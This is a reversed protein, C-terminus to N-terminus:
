IFRFEAQDINSVIELMDFSTMATMFTFPGAPDLNEPLMLDFITLNIIRGPTLFYRKFDAQNSWGPYFLYRNNGFAEGLDLILFHCVQQQSGGNMIRCQVKFLDGGFYQSQNLNLLVTLDDDFPTATPTGTGFYTPTPTPTRTCTHFGTPTVTPTRTPTCTPTHTPPPASGEVNGTVVLAYPQKGFHGQPVNFATVVITYVGANASGLFVCEEPNLRDLFGEPVSWGNNFNNGNWFQSGYTVTLDLDNVMAVACGPAAAHDTWVLTVKLPAGGDVVNVNYFHQEGTALGAPEDHIWLKYPEGQFYLVSDLLVRGWGQDNGPRPGTSVMAGSNILMAKMLAGSPNISNGPDPTGLPYWGETLYQRVLAACGAVGPCAMSTGMMGFGITTCSPTISEGSSNKASNLNTGPSDVTPKFRGDTAPGRSSYNAIQEQNPARGTAGVSVVNKSTAPTGVTSANPGSNGNAFLLLFDSHDWMFQDAEVAMSDYANETSGWSNTHIRAGDNYADGFITTLDSTLTLQGLWCEAFSNGQIDGFTIKSMFATGNYIQNSGYIDNGAATGSVHTGHGLFCSDYLNGGYARYAIVKRHLPNPSSQQNDRFFCSGYDLGSDLVGIIQNEGHLGNDWVPTFNNINSQLVWRNADNLLEIPYAPEVWLVDPLRALRDALGHWHEMEIWVSDGVEWTRDANVDEMDLWDLFYEEDADPCLKVRIEDYWESDEEILDQSLRYFSHYPGIWRVFPMESIETRDTESVRAVFAFDPVYDFLRCGAEKVASKWEERVPGEFQLVCLGGAEAMSLFYAPEIEPEEVLPDFVINNFRILEGTEGYSIGAFLFITMVIALFYRTKM